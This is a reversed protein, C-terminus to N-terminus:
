CKIIHSKGDHVKMSLNKTIEKENEYKIENSTTKWHQINLTQHEM